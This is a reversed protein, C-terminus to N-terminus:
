ANEAVIRGVEALVASREELSLPSEAFYVAVLMPARGPPWLVAIDNTAGNDGLGTKDGVRWDKPLGARLRKGGTKNAVLWAVLQERSTASLADGLLLREMDALMAAPTTTDRPDDPRAENLNPEIRDLRTTEDGLSRAYATLGQPGGIRALLLNGATNDSVTIAAECLEAITMGEGGVHKQTVPSNIVIDSDAFVVRRDLREEGRDVKALVAAAALFKFTSCMAFREDARRKIRRGSAKNLVAVGLRGGNKAELETLRADPEAGAAFGISSLLFVPATAAAAVIAARRTVDVRM